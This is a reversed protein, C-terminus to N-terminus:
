EDRDDNVEDVILDEIESLTKCYEPTRISLTYDPGIEKELRDRMDCVDASDNVNYVALLHKSNGSKVYLLIAKM